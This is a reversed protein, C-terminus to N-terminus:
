VANTLKDLDARMQGVIEEGEASAEALLLSYNAKGLQQIATRIETVVGQDGGTNVMIYTQAPLLLQLDNIVADVKKQQKQLM